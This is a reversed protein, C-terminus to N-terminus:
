FSTVSGCNLHTNGASIRCCTCSFWRRTTTRTEEKGESQATEPHEQQQTARQPCALTAAAPPAKDQSEQYCSHTAMAAAAARPLSLLPSGAEQLQTMTGLATSPQEKCTCSLWDLCMSRNRTHPSRYRASRSATARAMISPVAWPSSWACTCGVAGELHGKPPELETTDRHVTDAGM